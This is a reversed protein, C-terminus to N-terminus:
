GNKLNGKLQYHEMLKQNTFRGFARMGVGLIIVESLLWLGFRVYSWNIHNFVWSCVTSVYYWSDSPYFLFASIIMAFLTFSITIFRPDCFTMSCVAKFEYVPWSFANGIKEMQNLPIAERMLVTEKHLAFRLNSQFRSTM